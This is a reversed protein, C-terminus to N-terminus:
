KWRGITFWRFEYNEFTHEVNASLNFKFLDTRYNTISYVQLTLLSLNNISVNAYYIDNIFQQPLHVIYGDDYYWKTGNSYTGITGSKTITGWQIMTGDDYKVWSGNENKGSTYGFSKQPTYETAPGEELQMNKWSISGQSVNTIDFSIVYDEGDKLSSADFVILTDKASGNLGFGVQNFSSYKRFELSLKGIDNKLITKPNSVTTDNLYTQVKWYLGDSTDASTQKVTEGNKVCNVLKLIINDGLLNKCKVDGVVINGMAENGNLM